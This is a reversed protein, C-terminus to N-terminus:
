ENDEEFTCECEDHNYECGHCYYHDWCEICVRNGHASVAFEDEDNVTVNECRACLRQTTITPPTENVNAAHYALYTDLDTRLKEEDVMYYKCFGAVSTLLEKRYDEVNIINTLNAPHYYQANVGASDQSNYQSYFAIIGSILAIVEGKSSMDILTQGFTGFCPSDSLQHPHFDYALKGAEQERSLGLTRSSQCVFLGANSLRITFISPALLIGVPNDYNSKHASENMEINSLGIRVYLYEQTLSVKTAVGWVNDWSALTDVIEQCSIEKHEQPKQRILAAQQNYEAQQPAFLARQVNFRAKQQRLAHVQDVINRYAGFAEIATDGRVFNQERSTLNRLLPMTIHRHYRLPTNAFVTKIAQITRLRRLNERIENRNNSLAQRATVQYNTAGTVEEPYQERLTRLELMQTNQQMHFIPAVIEPKPPKEETGTNNPDYLFWDTTTSANTVTGTDM